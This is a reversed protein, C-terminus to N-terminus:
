IRVNIIKRILLGGIVTMIGASYLMKVGVDTQWLRQMYTPNVLVIAFGLVIPLLALVMGTMRGQATHVSIQRKLRFRERIIYAVKEVIEALNGGGEKQILIATVMIQVDHLPVRTALNEMSARFDLGFTQEDFCTRFETSIPAATEKAVTGIAAQIGHGARIASVMMDLADPLRQEFKALRASRLHLVYAFPAFAGVLAVAASLLFTETRWYTVLFCGLALAASWTLLTSVTWKSNAQVLVTQLRDLIDIRKLVRDLWPLSSLSDDRLIADLVDTDVQVTNSSIGALRSSTMKKRAASAAQLGVYILLVCCFVAAFVFLVFPSM